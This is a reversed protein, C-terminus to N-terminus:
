VYQGDFTEMHPDNRAQCIKRQSKKSADEISVQLWELIWNKFLFSFM